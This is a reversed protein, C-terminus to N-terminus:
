GPQQAHQAGLAALRERWMEKLETARETDPLGTHTIAVRVADGARSVTAVVRCGADEADDFWRWRVSKGATEGIVDLRVGPHSVALASDLWGFRRVPDTLAAYVADLPARVQKTVSAEFTGDARQGPMRLGRAQEYAVTVGQAWWGDVGHQDVLHAAIAKHPWGTAGQADLLGFWHERSAGTAKEVSEDTLQQVNSRTTM